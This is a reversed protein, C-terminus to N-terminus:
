DHFFLLMCILGALFAVVAVAGVLRLVNDATFHIWM